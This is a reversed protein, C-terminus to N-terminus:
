YRRMEERGGGGETAITGDAEEMLRLLEDVQREELDLSSAIM